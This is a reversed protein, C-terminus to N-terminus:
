QMSEIFVEELTLRLKNLSVIGTNTQACLDRVDDYANDNTIEMTIKNLNAVPNKIWNSTQLSALIRQINEPNSDVELQLKTGINEQLDKVKGSVKTKGDALIIVSDCVQEVENILHSSLIINMQFKDTLERILELMKDRQNPDLGDTPEDLIVIKPEHAIAQAVKVRQRQGTSLTGMPRFREEGMGVLWLSSNAREIAQAKPLGHLEAVLQVFESAKMEPSLTHHEPAYGIRQRTQAGDHWPKTGLVKLEGSDPKSIGIIMSLTTTKGAGNTGLLGTVGPNIEFSVNQLVPNNKFGKSLNTATVLAERGSEM